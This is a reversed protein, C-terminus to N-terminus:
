QKQDKSIKKMLKATLEEQEWTSSIILVHMLEIKV